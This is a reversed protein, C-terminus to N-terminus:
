QNEHHYIEGLGARFLSVSTNRLLDQAAVL